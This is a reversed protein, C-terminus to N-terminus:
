TWGKRLVGQVITQETPSTVFSRYRMTKEVALIGLYSFEGMIDALIPKEETDHCSFTCHFLLSVITFLSKSETTASHTGKQGPMKQYKQLLNEYFKKPLIASPASSTSCRGLVPLEIGMEKAETDSFPRQTCPQLEGCSGLTNTFFSKMLPDTSEKKAARGELKPM